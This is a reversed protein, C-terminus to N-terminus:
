ATCLLLQKKWAPPYGPSYFVNDQTHRVELPCLAGPLYAQKDLHQIALEAEQKTGYSVFACGRPQNSLKDQSM